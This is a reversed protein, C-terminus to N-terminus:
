EVERYKALLYKAYISEFDQITLTVIDRKGDPELKQAILVCGDMVKATLEYIAPKMPNDKIVESFIMQDKM